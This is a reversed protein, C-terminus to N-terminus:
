IRLFRHLKKVNQLPKRLFSCLFCPSFPFIGQLVNLFRLTARRCLSNQWLDNKRAVIKIFLSRNKHVISQFNGQYKQAKRKHTQCFGVFNRCFERWVERLFIGLLFDFFVGVFNQLLAPLFFGASFLGRFQLNRDRTTPSGSLM